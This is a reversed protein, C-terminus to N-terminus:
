GCVGDVQFPMAISALVTGLERHIHVDDQDESRKNARYDDFVAKDYISLDADGITFAGLRKSPCRKMIAQFQKLWKKEEATLPEVM